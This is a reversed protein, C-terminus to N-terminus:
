FMEGSFFHAEFLIDSKNSVKWFFQTKITKVHLRSFIGNGREEKQGSGQRERDMNQAAHLTPPNRIKRNLNTQVSINKGEAM